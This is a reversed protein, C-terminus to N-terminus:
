HPHECCLVGIDVHDDIEIGLNKGGQSLMLHEHDVVPAVRLDLLQQLGHGHQRAQLIHLDAPALSGLLRLLLQPLGQRLAAASQLSLLVVSLESCPCTRHTTDCICSWSHMWCMM